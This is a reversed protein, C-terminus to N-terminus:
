TLKGSPRGFVCEGRQSLHSNSFIGRPLALLHIVLHQLSGSDMEVVSVRAFGHDPVVFRSRKQSPMLLANGVSRPRVGASRWVPRKRCSTRSREAEGVAHHQGQQGAVGPRANACDMGGNTAPWDTFSKSNRMALFFCCPSPGHALYDTGSSAYAAPSRISRVRAARLDPFSGESDRSRRGFSDLFDFANRRGLADATEVITGSRSGM